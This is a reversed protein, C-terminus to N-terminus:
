FCTFVDCCDRLLYFNKTKGIPFAKGVAVLTEVEILKKTKIETIDVLSGTTAIIEGASNFVPCKYVDLAFDDGIEFFRCPIRFSKTIIDTLNCINTIDLVMSSIDIDKLDEPKLGHIVNSMEEDIIVVNNNIETDTKGVM